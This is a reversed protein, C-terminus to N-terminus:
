ASPAAEAAETALTKIADLDETATLVRIGIAQDEIDLGERLDARIRDAVVQAGASATHPLVLVYSGWPLRGVEDVLRLGSRIREVISRVMESLNASKASGTSRGDIGIVVVSFIASYREFTSVSETLRRSLFHPTYALSSEDIARADKALAFMVRMRGCAEGGLVGVAGYALVRVALLAILGSSMGGAPLAFARVAVYLVAAALAALTGGNRGFRVAAVLVVLLLLQAVLEIPDLQSVLSLTATGVIAAVGIGIFLREFRTYDM